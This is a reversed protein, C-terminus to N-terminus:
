SASGIAAALRALVRSAVADALADVDVGGVSVREALVDVDHAIGDVLGAIAGIQGVLWNQEVGDPTKTSWATNYSQEGLAFAQTRRSTAEVQKATEDSMTTGRLRAVPDYGAMDTLKTSDSRMSVHIHGRDSSPTRKHGPQWQDHYCPGTPGTPEWNMYKVLIAGPVGAQIDAYLQSGLAALSPLDPRGTETPDAIDLAHGYWRPSAGPWGTASFPTHDEPVSAQMHSTDGRTWVTYGYGRLTKALDAVPRADTYPEGAEVWDYYGSSPM